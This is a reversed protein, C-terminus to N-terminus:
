EEELMSSEEEKKMKLIESYLNKPNETKSRVFTNEGFPLFTQMLVEDDLYDRERESKSLHDFSQVFM